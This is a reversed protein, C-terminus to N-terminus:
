KQAHSGARAVQVDLGDVRVHVRLDVRRCEEVLAVGVQGHGAIARAVVLTVDVTEIATGCAEDALKPIGVLHGGVLGDAVPAVGADALEAVICVVVAVRHEVAKEGTQGRTDGVAVLVDVLTAVLVGGLRGLYAEEAGQLVVEQHVGEAVHRKGRREFLGHAVSTGLHVGPQLLLQQLYLRLHALGLRLGGAVGAVVTGVLSRYPHQEGAEVEVGLDIRSSRLPLLSGVVGLAHHLRVVM